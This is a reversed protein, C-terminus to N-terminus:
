LFATLITCSCRKGGGGDVFRRRVHYKFNTKPLPRKLTNM